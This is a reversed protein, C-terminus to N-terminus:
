SGNGGEQDCDWSGLLVEELRGSWLAQSLQHLRRFVRGRAVLPVM